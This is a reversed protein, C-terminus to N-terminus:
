IQGAEGWRGRGGVGGRGGGLGGRGEGRGRAQILHLAEGLQGRAADFNPEEATAAVVVNAYYDRLREAAADFAEADYHYGPDQGVGAQTDLDAGADVMTQVAQLFRDTSACEGYYARSSSSSSSPPTPARPPRPLPTPPLIRLLFFFSEVNNNHCFSSSFPLFKM